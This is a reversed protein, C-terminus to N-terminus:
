TNDKSEPENQTGPVIKLEGSMTKANALQGMMRTVRTLAYGFADILKSQSEALEPFMSAIGLKDLMIDFEALLRIVRRDALMSAVDDLKGSADEISLDSDVFLDYEGEEPGKTEIDEFKAPAVDENSPITDKLTKEAPALEAEPIPEEVQAVPTPMTQSAPAVPETAVQQGQELDQALKRIENSGQHFGDRDLKNATKYTLSSILEANKLSSVDTVLRTATEMFQAIEEQTLGPTQLIKDILSKASRKVTNKLAELREPNIKKSEVNDEEM